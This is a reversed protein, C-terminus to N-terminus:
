RSGSRFERALQVLEDFSFNESAGRGELKKIKEVFRGFAKGDVGAQRAAANIQKQDSANAGRTKERYDGGRGGGSGGWTGSSCLIGGALGGIAGGISGGALGGGWAGLAGGGALGVANGAVPVLTGLAFGSVGGTSGGIYAGVGAGAVLGGAVLAGACNPSQRFNDFATVVPTVFQEVQRATEATNTLSRLVFEHFFSLGPSQATVETCFNGTEPNVGDVCAEGSPDTFRLPNNRVYSYLNWSQPDTPDQDAFPADPSTFRGLTAWFYRANFYDLGTETGAASEPDRTQGTFLPLGTAPTTYCDAGPRTLQAGYPAYDLRQACGGQANLILRTSGLHDPVLYQTGVPSPTGGYEAMLQGDASYVYYTTTTGVTRRVRRGEADYDYTAVPNTNLEVRSVRGEGDYSATTGPTLSLQTQHGASDHTTNTLRNNVQGDGRRHSNGAM